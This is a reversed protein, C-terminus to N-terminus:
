AYSLVKSDTVSFLCKGTVSCTVRDKGQVPAKVDTLVVKNLILSHGAMTLTIKQASGSAAYGALGVYSAVDMDLEMSLEASAGQPALDKLTKTNIAAYDKDINLNVSLKLSEVIPAGAIAITSATDLIEIATIDFCSLSDGVLADVTVKPTNTIVVSKSVVGLDAKFYSKKSVSLSFSDVACDAFKRQQTPTLDQFIDFTEAAVGANPTIWKNIIQDLLVHTIELGISGEGYATTVLTGNAFRNGNLVDSEIAAMSPEMSFSTQHMRIANTILGTKRYGVVTNRGTIM